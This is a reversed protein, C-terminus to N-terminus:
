VCFHFTTFYSDQARGAHHALAKDLEEAIVGPELNCPERGAIAAGALAVVLGAAPLELRRQGRVDGAHGQMGFVGSPVGDASSGRMMKAASSAETAWSSSGFNAAAPQATMEFELAKRMVVSTGSTM